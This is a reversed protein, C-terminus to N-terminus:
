FLSTHLRKEDNKLLDYIEDSINNARKCKNTIINGEKDILVHHPYSKIDYNKEIFDDLTGNAYLNVMQLDYKKSLLIWNDKTTSTCINIFKINEDKFKSVLENEDPFEALCPKCGSYWFSLYVFSGKFDKLQHEKGNTDPLLFSPAKDGKQLLIGNEKRNDLYKKFDERKIADYYLTYISDTSKNVKIILDLNHALFFDSATETLTKLSLNVLLESYNQPFKKDKKTIIYQFKNLIYNYYSYTLPSNPCDKMFEDIREYYNPPISISQKLFDRRYPITILKSGALGCKIDTIVYDIFWLPLLKRDKYNHIYDLEKQTLKDVINEYESITNIANFAIAYPYNFDSIKFQLEKNKYYNSIASFEGTYRIHQKINKNSDLDLYIELTDNPVLFCTTSFDKFGYTLELPQQINFTLKKVGLKDSIVFDNEIHGGPFYNYFNTEFFISDQANKYHFIVTSSTNFNISLDIPKKEKLVDSSCSIIFIFFSFLASNRIM